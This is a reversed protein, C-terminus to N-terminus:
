IGLSKHIYTHAEQGSNKNLIHNSNRYGIELESQRHELTQIAMDFWPLHINTDHSVMEFNQARVSM